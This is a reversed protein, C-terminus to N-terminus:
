LDRFEMFMILGFFVCWANIFGNSIAESISILYVKNQLNFSFDLLGLFILAGASLLSTTRGLSIRNKLLYASIFLAISLIIDAPPFAHEYVFYCAPAANPDIMGVTFFLIWFAILGAGTLIQAIIILNLVDISVPISIKKVKKGSKESAKSKASTKGKSVTKSKSSSKVSAKKKSSSKIAM